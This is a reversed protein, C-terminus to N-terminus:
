ARVERSWDLGVRRLWQEGGSTNRIMWAALYALLAALEAAPADDLIADTVPQPLDGLRATVLAVAAAPVDARSAGSRAQQAAELADIQACRAGVGAAVAAATQLPRGCRRCAPRAPGPLLRPDLPTNM